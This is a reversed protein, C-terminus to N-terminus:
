PVAIRSQAAHSVAPMEVLNTTQDYEVQGDKLKILRDGVNYYADDHSIVIITKGRAKLEPLLSHYFVKKFAPDQDAAWEDFIYIPRDELYATMLALRKRQGQSMSTTSLRGEKVQVSGALGLMELYREADTDLSPNSLGLLKEFLFFDSFVVSFLQRYEDRNKDQVPQGDIYIDGEEPKYLGAILKALTTKGSGNGGVLFILEGPTIRCDVPGLMFKEAEGERQYSHTVNSLVIQEWGAAEGSAEKESSQEELSLGLKELTEMSIAARGLTPLNSSLIDIPSAMYMIVLLSSVLAEHGIWGVTPLLFVLLGFLIFQVMQGWGGAGAYYGIGTINQRRYESATLSLINSIFTSRRNRHLKLEKFGETLARFHGMMEDQSERAKRMAAFAQRMFWKFGLAGTVLSTLTLVLAQWSIHGLFLLCAILVTIHTCLIPFITFASGIVMVDETLSALLRSSGTLEVFRLPAGLIQRCLRLRLDFIAGQALQALLVQSVVRTIPLLVCLGAFGWVVALTFQRQAAAKSIVSLLLVHCAGSLIGALSAIVMKYKSRRFLYKVIKM